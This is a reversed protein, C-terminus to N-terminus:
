IQPESCENGLDCGYSGIAKSLTSPSLHAARAIQTKTWGSTEDEFKTMSVAVAAITSPTRGGLIASDEIINAMRRARMILRRWDAMPVAVPGDGCLATIIRPVIEGGGAVGPEAFASMGKEIAKLERNIDEKRLGIALAVKKATRPHTMVRTIIVILAAIFARKNREYVKPTRRDFYSEVHARYEDAPLSLRDCAAQLFDRDRRTLRPGTCKMVCAVDPRWEAPDEEMLCSLVLGCSTCVSGAGKAEVVTGIHACGPAEM